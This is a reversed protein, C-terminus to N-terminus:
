EKDLIGISYFYTLADIRHFSKKQRSLFDDIDAETRVDKCSFGMRSIKRNMNDIIIGVFARVNSPLDDTRIGFKLMYHFIPIYKNGCCIRRDSVWTLFATKSDIMGSSNFLVDM